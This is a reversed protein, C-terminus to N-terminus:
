RCYKTIMWASAVDPIRKSKQATLKFYGAFWM